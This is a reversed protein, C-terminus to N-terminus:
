GDEGGSRGSIRREIETATWGAAPRAEWGAAAYAADRRAADSGDAALVVATRRGPWALEAQWNGDGLEYGVEPLALGRAALDRVLAILAADDPDLLDLVPRWEPSPRAVPGTSAAAPAAVQAPAAAALTAPDFADLATVALQRGDGGADGGGLFQVLNGWYLWGAWRRRHGDPDAAITDDRDDVTALATWVPTGTRTDVVLVLPCGHDDSVRLVKQPGEGPPLPTGRLAASVLPPLLGAAACGTSDASARLLGAVAAEVDRRWAAGDPDALFALLTAVPNRWIRETLHAIDGGSAQLVSKADLQAQGGYPPRAGGAAGDGGGDWGTVDDWTLQFVRTGDARLGARTGADDALRNVDRDAHWRYGDLYVAVYLPEADRRELWVDPRTHRITNQLRVSWHVVRGDAATVRLDGTRVGDAETVRGFAVNDTTGAWDELLRLFRRELESEVQDWLSVEGTSAIPRTDWGDLLTALMDDAVRRDVLEESADDLRGLLCRHCAREGDAACRCSTVVRRAEELVARFEEATSLRHLYGTGGPLTDYLVVFRRPLGTEADPMTATELSLHDPDGGYHEAIGALLAAAFSATRREDSADAIPLLVRLAETRLEHALLLSRHQSSDHAPDGASADTGPTDRAPCWPRHHDRPVPRDIDVGGCTTCTRFPNLQTLTGAILDSDPQEPRAPGLNLHRIVAGRSYEVGFTAGARRWAGPAIDAPAIDFAAVQKYYMREREDSDDRIRADDRRDRATVRTPVVVDHLASTDGIGPRGCRTCPSTDGADAGTRVYGCEPCVRWRRWSPRARTGLDLGTIQHKFGQAYFHNGPALETLAYRAPRDYDRVESRFREEGDADDRWVLTAELRTVNDILAYNPLLGLEVMAQQAPTREVAGLHRGVARREAGLQRAQTAQRPDSAVLSELADDIAEIRDELTERRQRWADRAAEVAGALGRVAFDRLGAAADADVAVVPDTGDPPGTVVRGDEMRGFLGLFRGALEAGRPVAAAALAALWGQTGALPGTLPGAHPATQAGGQPGFLAAAIRPLPRVGPLAGRGALDVLHAVYQRRLIEVASLYCGPPAIEGAIMDTPDALFYRDRSRRGALAFILADGSRRGARGARQVYGAPGRPLSALIVSSLDGIDIGLELTPTCCLVNPDTYHGGDTFAREVRERQARTLTGTHEATRVTYPEARNYLRRYYDGTADTRRRGVTGGCRYRPCRRGAWEAVRAPHVTLTWPCTDCGVGARGAEHDALARVEIHGPRLGYVRTAGDDATRAAIVDLGVLEPLLLRLYAGAEAAPIGLCRTTWDAYWSARRDARDFESRAKDQTLVFRPPATGTGFAPMGDPREGWITGYRRTGARGIWRRLWRHTVAGRQRMRELLGRVYTVYVEPPPLEGLTGYGGNVHLDRALAAAAAPDPLRVEAAVTRTLELTRGQRSRLGFELVTAFALREGLLDWTARTGTGAGALLADVDPRDWLDPPVVASLDHGGIGTVVDAILENLPVAGGPDDRERLTTSLLARLSFGYSRNAVYGGRHAADQVSDNFMLTKRDTGTLQGGTFLETIAVSALAAIGTGIFRIGEEDGCAPCRDRHAAANGEADHRLDVLVYIGDDPGAGAGAGDRATDYPRVRAGTLDLVSVPPRSPDAAFASAEAATAAILPRVHRKRTGGASARYIRDPQTILLHPDREPSIVAWGSRGCHRCYVAPLFDRGAALRSTDDPVPAPEGYWAFAPRPGIERLLRTVSRAWLHTEIHLLPQDPRDPDSAASLLAVFRALATAAVEPTDRIAAGWNYAGHRPLRELVERLTCPRDGLVHLVALTLVHARLKEGLAAGTLPAGTVVEAIRDMAGPDDQPDDLDALERPAPLPLSYDLPDTVFEEATLRDEGIVAEADFGVGFATAAADRVRDADGGSGLTASTAVPCIGRLPRDGATEPGATAALRRLLMAVDSGQAGDYTHFEDVVVYTLRADHWLPADEPRQLLLDLMKYNTLLIDPPHDRIEGRGTMVRAYGAGPTEGVYLGATVDRLADHRRLLGDLRKTQDTALANMPYLLLAKVGGEGRARARRCHDLIPYLFAETKGSGTGTTIVTPRPPGHLSSLRAFARAQHAHPTFGEPAWELHDRWGHEGGEDTAAASRYRTRVRLYPGRFVGHVPHEIFRELGDGTDADALAFTTTLYQTM